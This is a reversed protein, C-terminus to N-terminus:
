ADSRQIDDFNVGEIVDSKLGAFVELDTIKKSFRKIHSMYKWDRIDFAVDM